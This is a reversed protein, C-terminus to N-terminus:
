YQKVRIKISVKIIKEVLSLRVRASCSTQMAVEDFGDHFRDEFEEGFRESHKKLFAKELPLMLPKWSLM